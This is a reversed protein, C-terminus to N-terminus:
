VTESKQVEEFTYNKGIKKLREFEAFCKQQNFPYHRQIEKTKQRFEYACQSDCFIHISNTALFEDHCFLCIERRKERKNRNKLDKKQCVDNCFVRQSYPTIFESKCVPCIKKTPQKHPQTNAKLLCETCCYKRGRHNASFEKGCFACQKTIPQRLKVTLM